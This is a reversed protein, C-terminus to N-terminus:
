NQNQFLIKYEKVAKSLQHSSYAKELKKKANFIGPTDFLILQTNEITIVGTIISRTTQVKPTVISIKQGIIKNLLTSKGANPKGIICVSLLKQVEPKSM